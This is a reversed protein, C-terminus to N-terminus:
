VPAQQAPLGQDLYKPVALAKFANPIEYAGVESSSMPSKVPSVASGDYLGDYL